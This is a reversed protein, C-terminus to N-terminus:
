WTVRQTRSLCRILGVVAAANMVVFSRAVGGVRGGLRPFLAVLYFLIQGLLLGVIWGEGAGAATAVGLAAAASALFLGVLVFPCVLRLLKHSVYEFFSPNRLPNLLAPLLRLLQFNGALTRVKRGFEREDRFAEDFAVAGEAFAIRRGALRLRMPIWMDDLIVDEPLPAMDRARIAYIPGTVGLMSRLRAEERRIWNEYRWYLGAGTEGRLVLNGSVCGVEPDALQEVLARLAGPVLPQRVDTLLLVEGRAMPVMTNLATPKGRRERARIVRVRPDTRAIAEAVECTDDDSGDSYVLVEVREAPYDLERLSRLKEPLYSAGNYAPILVSVTPTHAPDRSPGGRRVRALLAVLLPYGAYTYALIAVAAIIFLSM